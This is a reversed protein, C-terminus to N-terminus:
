VVGVVFVGLSVRPRRFAENFTSRLASPQTQQGSLRTTGNDGAPLTAKVARLDDALDSASQYRAEPKKALAKIIIRDLEAPIRPNVSSPRPPEVHLVQAGIEIVSSGTFASRGTACEYLMAGLAFLDSRGDVKGGTAQEPSLYLPTGVVVESRTRTALLTKADKDADYFQEEYLQKALGFDLVKVQGRDAVVINAPKIDRHIIGHAHAESLADAVAEVIEVARRLGIKSEALLDNLARGRVLEMVIYPKGEPTEGYDFVTTINPHSLLSVSRAERLFRARYHQEDTLTLFKIAVRRGLRTDVAAYVIGMGGEGLEELIRYHSITQGIM